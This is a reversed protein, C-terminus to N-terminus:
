HQCTRSDWHRQPYDSSLGRQVCRLMDGALLLSSVSLCLHFHTLNKKKKVRKLAILPHDTLAKRDRRYGIRMIRGEVEDVGVSEKRRLKFKIKYKLGGNEDTIIVSRM